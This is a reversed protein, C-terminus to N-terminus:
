ITENLCFHVYKADKRFNWESSKKAENELIIPVNVDSYKKAEM